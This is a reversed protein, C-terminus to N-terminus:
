GLARVAPAVSAGAKKPKKRGGSTLLAALLMLVVLSGVVWLLAKIAPSLPEAPTVKLLEPFPLSPGSSVVDDDEFLQHKRAKISQEQTRPAHPDPSM